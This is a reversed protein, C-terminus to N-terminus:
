GDKLSREFIYTIIEDVKKNRIKACMIYVEAEAPIGGLIQDCEDEIASRHFDLPCNDCDGYAIRGLVDVLKELEELDNEDKM